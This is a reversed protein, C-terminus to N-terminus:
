VNRIFSAPVTMKKPLGIVLQLLRMAVLQKQLTIVM